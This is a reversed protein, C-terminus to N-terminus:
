KISRPDRLYEANADNAEVMSELIDVLDEADSVISKAARQASRLSAAAEGWRKEHLAERFDRMHAEMSYRHGHLASIRIILKDHSM